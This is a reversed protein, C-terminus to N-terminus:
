TLHVCTNHQTTDPQIQHTLSLIHQYLHLCMRMRMRMGHSGGWKKKEDKREM